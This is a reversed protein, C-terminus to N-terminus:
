NGANYVVSGGYNYFNWPKVTTSEDAVMIGGLVTSMLCKKGRDAMQLEGGWIIYKGHGLHRMYGIRFAEHGGICLVLFTGLCFIAPRMDGIGIHSEQLIWTKQM